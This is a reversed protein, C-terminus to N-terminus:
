IENSKKNIQFIIRYPDKRKRRKGALEGKLLKSDYPKSKIENISELIIILQKEDSKSLKKLFKSVKKSFAVEFNSKL